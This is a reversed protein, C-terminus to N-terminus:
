AKPMEWRYKAALLRLVMIISAGIIMAYLSGIREWILAAVFSGIIVACAYFHKVFIYPTQGTLMDRLISGGTGSILGVFVLLFVTYDNSLEYASEMGAMAFLSLGASDFWLLVKDFVAKEKQLLNRVPKLFVFISVAIAVMPFVPNVFIFPPTIGLILDRIVGGGIATVVGLIVVGFIDLKKEIAVLSGSVAFAVVGIIQIINSITDTM